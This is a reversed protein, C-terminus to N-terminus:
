YTGPMKLGDKTTVTLLPLSIIVTISIIFINYKKKM